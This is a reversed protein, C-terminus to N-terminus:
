FLSCKDNGDCLECSPGDRVAHTLCHHIRVDILQAMLTHLGLPATVLVSIGAHEQAASRALRPIDQDWHRGPSLFYPFIVIRRAGLQVCRDVSAAISPEALEMHAPEVIPYAYTKQFLAVVDLLMKNADNRRSGHDVIIIGTDSMDHKEPTPTDRKSHMPTRSSPASRFPFRGM